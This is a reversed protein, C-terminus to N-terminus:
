RHSVGFVQFPVQKINMSCAIVVHVILIRLHQHIFEDFMVTLKLKHRIRVPVVAHSLFMQIRQKCVEQLLM